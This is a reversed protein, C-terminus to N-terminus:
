NLKINTRYHIVRYVFWNTIDQDLRLHMKRYIYIYWTFLLIITKTKYNYTWNFIDWLLCPLFNNKFLISCNLFIIWNIFIFSLTVFFENIETISINVIRINLTYSLFVIHNRRTYLLMIQKNTMMMMTYDIKFSTQRM